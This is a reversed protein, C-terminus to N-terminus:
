AADRERRARVETLVESYMGPALAQAQSVLARKVAAAMGLAGDDEAGWVTRLVALGAESASDLNLSLRRAYDHGSGQPRPRRGRKPKM